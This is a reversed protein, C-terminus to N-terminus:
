ENNLKHLAMQLEGATIEGDKHRNILARKAKDMEDTVRGKIYRTDNRFLFDHARNANDKNNWLPSAM